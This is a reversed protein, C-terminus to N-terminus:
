KLKWCSLYYTSNSIEAGLKSILIENENPKNLSIDENDFLSRVVNIKIGFNINEPIVGFNKETYQRDLKAVVVGIVNGKKNLIPGGSNGPQIAADIQFNSFNNGIGTLSSIIGKTVKISTSFKDGFPYGAVYIEQLLKTKKKSFPLVGRSTFNGKILAVDNRSDLKIINAPIIKDKNHIKIVDCGNVVHYNTILYGDSAVSFGTGSGSFIIKSNKINNTEVIESKIRNNYIELCEKFKNSGDILGIEKCFNKNKKVKLEKTLTSNIKSSIKNKYVLICENYKDTGRTLGIEKCFSQYEEMKSYSNPIPKDQSYLFKDDKWIGRKVIDGNEDYRIAYGNLKGNKFEGIDKVRNAYIYTGKGHRKGNKHQGVYKDGAWKSQPGFKYVGQGHRENKRHEGKYVSGDIYTYIGQGHRENNKHKGEYKSGDPWIEIGYGHRKMDKWTGVYTAGSTHIYTGNGNGTNNQFEGIYKDGTDWIYTGYCNHKYASSSCPPLAWSLSSLFILLILLLSSLLVTKM